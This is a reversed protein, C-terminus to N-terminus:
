CPFALRSNLSKQASMAETHECQEERVDHIRSTQLIPKAVTLCHWQDLMMM